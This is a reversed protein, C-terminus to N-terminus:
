LSSTKKPLALIFNGFKKQSYSPKDFQKAEFPTLIYAEVKTADCSELGIQFRDVSKTHLYLAHQNYFVATDHFIRPDMRLQYAITMEPVFVNRHTVCIIGDVSDVATQVAEDLSASFYVGIYKAYSDFYYTTFAYFSLAYALILGIWSLKSVRRLAELGAATFYILPFIMINLRHISPDIVAALPVTSLLWFLILISANYKKQPTKSRKTLLGIITIPLSFVYLFGFRPIVNETFFDNQSILLSTFKGINRVISLLLTKERFFLASQQRTVHGLNPISFLPTEITEWGFTNVVLFLVIPTAILGFVICCALAMRPTIKKHILLYPLVFLAFVPLFVYSTGYSYLSLGFTAAAAIYLQPKEEIAKLLFCMGILFLHPFLNCDWGWRMAVIHWPNIVLLFLGLLALDKGAIRRCLWYFLPLSALGFLLNVARTAIPVLGFMMIFPMSFYGALTGSQGSGYAGFIIPWHFGNREVGYTLLSYADYTLSAEDRHLGAPVSGFKYLRITAGVFLLIGVLWVHIPVARIKEKWTALPYYGSKKTSSVTAM